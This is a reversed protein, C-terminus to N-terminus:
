ESPLPASSCAAWPLQPAGSRSANLVLSGSAMPLRLQHTAVRGMAPAHFQTTELM